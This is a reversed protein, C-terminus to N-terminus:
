KYIYKGLFLFALSRNRTFLSFIGCGLMIAVMIEVVIFSPPADVVQLYDTFSIQKCINFISAHTFM